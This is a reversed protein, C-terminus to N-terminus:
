NPPPARDPPDPFLRHLPAIVYRMEADDVTRQAEARWGKLAEDYDDYFGVVHLDTLDKFDITRLDKVVGGFVLYLQTM